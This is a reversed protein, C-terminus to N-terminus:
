ASEAADPRLLGRRQRIALDDVRLVDLDYAVAWRGTEVAPSTDLYRM